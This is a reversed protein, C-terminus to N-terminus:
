KLYQLLARGEDTIQYIRGRKLDENLCVVLNEKKLDSLSNSVQTVRLGTHKSIETPMKLDHELSKLTKTRTPSVKVYGLKNFFEKELM